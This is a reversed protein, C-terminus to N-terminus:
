FWGHLRAWPLQAATPRKSDVARNFFRRFCGAYDVISGRRIQREIKEYPSKGGTKRIVSLSLMQQPKGPLAIALRQAQNVTVFVDAGAILITTVSLIRASRNKLIQILQRKKQCSWITKQVTESTM